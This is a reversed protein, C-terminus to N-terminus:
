NVEVFLFAILSECTGKLLSSKGIITLKIAFGRSTEEVGSSSWVLRFETWISGSLLRVQTIM